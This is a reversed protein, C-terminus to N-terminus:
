SALKADADSYTMRLLGASCLTLYSWVFLAEEGLVVLWGLADTLSAGPQPMLQQALWLTLGDKAAAAQLLAQALASRAREADAMHWVAQELTAAGLAPYARHFALGVLVAVLVTGVVAAALRWALEPLYVANVHAALAQRLWLEAVVLVPASAVLAAWARGDDLRLVALLLTLALAAGLAFRTAAMVWGGRLRRRLASGDRLYAGLAAARRIRARRFLAFGMAAAMVLWAAVLAATPLTRGFVHLLWLGATLGLLALTALLARHPM